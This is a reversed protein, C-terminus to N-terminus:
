RLCAAIDNGIAAEDYTTPRRDPRASAYALRGIHLALAKFAPDGGSKSLLDLVRQYLWQAEAPSSLSLVSGAIRMVTRIRSEDPQVTLIHSLWILVARQQGAPFTFVTFYRDVIAESPQGLLSTLGAAAQEFWGRRQSLEPVFGVPASRMAFEIEKVVTPDYQQALLVFLNTIQQGRERRETLAREAAARETWVRYVIYAVPPILIAVFCGAACGLDQV